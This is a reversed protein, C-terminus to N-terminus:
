TLSPEIAQATGCTDVTSTAVVFNVSARFCANPVGWVSPRASPGEVQLQLRCPGNSITPPLFRYIGEVETEQLSFSGPECAGNPSEATAQTLDPSLGNLPVNTIVGPFGARLRGRLVEGPHDADTGAGRADIYVPVGGYVTNGPAENSTNVGQVNNSTNYAPGNIRGRTQGGVLEPRGNVEEIRVDPGVSINLLNKNAVALTDALQVTVVPSISIGGTGDNIAVRFYVVPDFVTVNPVSFSAM